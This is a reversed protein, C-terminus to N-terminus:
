PGAPVPQTCDASPPKSIQTLRVQQNHEVIAADAEAPTAGAPITTFVCANVCVGNEAKYAWCDALVTKTPPAEPM